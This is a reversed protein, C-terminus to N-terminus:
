AKVPGTPPHRFLEVLRQQPTRQPTGAQLRGSAELGRIEALTRLMATEPSFLASLEDRGPLNAGAVDRLPRKGSAQVM